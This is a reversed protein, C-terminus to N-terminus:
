GEGGSGVFVDRSVGDDPCVRVSELAVGVVEGGWELEERFAPGVLHRGCVEEVFSSELREDRSRIAANSLFQRHHFHPSTNCIQNPFKLNSKGLPILPLPQHSLSLITKRQLNPRQINPQRRSSRRLCLNLQQNSGSRGRHLLSEHVWRNKKRELRTMWSM